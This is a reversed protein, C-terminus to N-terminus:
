KANTHHSRAHHCGVQLAQNWKNMVHCRRATGLSHHPDLNDGAIDDFTDMVVVRKCFAGCSLEKAMDRLLATKGSRTEGVVLLSQRQPRNPSGSAIAKM